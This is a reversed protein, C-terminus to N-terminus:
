ALPMKLQRRIGLADRAGFRKTIRRNHFHFWEMADIRYCEGTVPDVRFSAIVDLLGILM